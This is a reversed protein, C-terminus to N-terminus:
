LCRLAEFVAIKMLKVATKFFDDFHPHESSPHSSPPAAPYSALDEVVHSPGWLAVLTQFVFKWPRGCQTSRISQRRKGVQRPELRAQAEIVGRRKRSVHGCERIALAAEASRGPGQSGGFM